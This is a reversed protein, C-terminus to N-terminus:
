LIERRHQMVMEVDDALDLMSHLMANMDPWLAAVETFNM